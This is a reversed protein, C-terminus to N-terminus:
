RDHPMGFMLLMFKRWRIDWHFWERQDKHHRWHARTRLTV